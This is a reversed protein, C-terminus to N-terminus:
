TKVPNSADGDIDDKDAPRQSSTDANETAASNDLVSYGNCHVRQKDEIETKATQAKNALGLSAVLFRM